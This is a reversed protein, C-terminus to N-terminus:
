KSENLKAAIEPTTCQGEMNVGPMVTGVAQLMDENLWGKAVMIKYIINEENEPTTFEWFTDERTIKKVIYDSDTEEAKKDYIMVPISVPIGNGKNIKITYKFNGKEKPIKFLVEIDEGTGTYQNIYAVNGDDLNEADAKYVFLTCENGLPVNKITITVENGDVIVEDGDSSSAKKYREGVFGLFKGKSIEHTEPDEVREYKGVFAVPENGKEFYQYNKTWLDIRSYGLETSVLFDTDYIKFSTDIFVDAFTPTYTIMPRPEPYTNIPYTDIVLHGDDEEDWSYVLIPTRKNEEIIEELNDGGEYGFFNLAVAQIEKDESFYSSEPNMYWPGPKISEKKVWRPVEIVGVEGSTDLYYNIEPMVSIRHHGGTDFSVRFRGNKDTKLIAGSRDKLYVGEEDTIYAEAIPQSDEPSELHELLQFEIEEGGDAEAMFKDFTAVMQQHGYDYLCVNLEDGSHLVINQPKDFIDNGNKYLISAAIKGGFYTTTGDQNMYFKINEPTLEGYKQIHYCIIAHLYTIDYPNQPEYLSLANPHIISADVSKLDFWNVSLDMRNEIVNFPTDVDTIDTITIKVDIPEVVAQSEVVQEEIDQGEAYTEISGISFLTAVALLPAIFYKYKRYKM